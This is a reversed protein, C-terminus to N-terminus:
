QRDVGIQRNAGAEMRGDVFTLRGVPLRQPGHEGALLVALRGDEVVGRLRGTGPVQSVRRRQVPSLDDVVRLVEGPLERVVPRVAQLAYQRTPEREHAAGPRRAM